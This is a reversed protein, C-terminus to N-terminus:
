SSALTLFDLLYSFLYVLINNLVKEAHSPL